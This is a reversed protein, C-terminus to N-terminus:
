NENPSVELRQQEIFQKVKDSVTDFDPVKGYTLLEGNVLVAITNFGKTFSRYFGKWGIRQRMAERLLIAFFAFVNRPDIIELKVQEGYLAKLQRYLEGMDMMIKRREAFLQGEGYTVV